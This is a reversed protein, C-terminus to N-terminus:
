EGRAREQERLYSLTTKLIQPMLEAERPLM